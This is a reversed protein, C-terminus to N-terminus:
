VGTSGFGGDKRNSNSLEADTTVCEIKSVYNVVLQCVRDGVKYINFYDDINTNCLEVDANFYRSLAKISPILKFRVKWEGRYSSDITGPSNCMILDYKSVSSRPRIQMDLGAIETSTGENTDLEIQTAFGLSYEVYNDTITRGTAVLDFGTNLTDNHYDGQPLTPQPNEAQQLNKFVIRPTPATPLKM